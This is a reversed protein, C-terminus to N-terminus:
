SEYSANKAGWVGILLVIVFYVVVVTFYGYNM